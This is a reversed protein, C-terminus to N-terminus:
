VAIVIQGTYDGPVPATETGDVTMRVPRGDAGDIGAGEALTLRTLYSTGTVTWRSTADLSVIVGNNVAPQATDVYIGIEACNEKIIKEARHASRSASIVGRIRSDTLAVKLNRAGQKKPRDPMPAAPPKGEAGGSMDPPPAMMVPAPGTDPKQETSSNYINGAAEMHSLSLLTDEGSVYESVDLSENRVDPEPPDVYYGTPSRPDDSIATQFLVGTKSELTCSDLLFDCPGGKNLITTMGSRFVCGGDARLTGRSAATLANRGAEIVTGNTYHQSGMAGILGYDPVRITCHDFLETVDGISFAGYGSPGTVEIVCDRATLSGKELDDVSLVGWGGATIHCKEYTVSANGCLNTTRCNGRLGLMWPVAKMVGLKITDQYDPPLVGDRSHIECNRFTVSSEGSIVVANKAPGATEITSDEVTLNATGHVTLASGWGCFDNGGTGAARLRANKLTYDGGGTVYVCNFTDGMSEVTLNEAHGDAAEGALLAARVSRDSVKGDEVVLAARFNHIMERYPVPLADTVTLVVNGQYQGQQIERQIGDVTLTLSKGEPALVAAGEAITLGALCTTEEVIWTDTINTWENM